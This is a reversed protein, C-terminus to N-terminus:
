GPMRGRRHPKQKELRVCVSVGEDTVYKPDGQDARL